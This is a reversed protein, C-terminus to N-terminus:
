NKNVLEYILFQEKINEFNDTKMCFKQKNTSFQYRTINLMNNKELVEETVVVSDKPLGNMLIYNINENFMGLVVCGNNGFFNLHATEYLAVRLGMNWCCENFYIINSNFDLRALSDDTDSIFVPSYNNEILFEGFKFWEKINSNRATDFLSNRLTITVIKNKNKINNKIWVNVYERGQESSKLGEVLGSKNLKKFLLNNLDAKRLNRSDYLDPYYEIDKIIEDIKIRNPLKYYGICKKSLPILQMIINVFRWERSAINIKSNYEKWELLNNSTMSTPVIIVVFGKKGRKITEYELDVLFIGFNYTIDCIELDYIGYLIEDDINIKKFFSKIIKKIKLLCDIFKLLYFNKPSRMEMIIREYLWKFGNIKIKELLSKM